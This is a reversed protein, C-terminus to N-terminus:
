VKKEMIWLTIIPWFVKINNETLLQAYEPNVKFFYSSKTPNTARTFPGELNVVVMDSSKFLPTLDNFVNVNSQLADNVGRSLM